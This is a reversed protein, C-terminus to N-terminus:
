PVIFEIEIEVKVVEGIAVKGMGLPVNLDIGYDARRIQGTATFGVREKGDSPLTELGNFDVALHAPQTVGNVTLDGVMEYRDEHAPTIRTSRFTMHPHDNANFFDSSLLHADRDPQNTDISSLDITATVEVDEFSPGMALTADFTKFSGRVNALGLHRVQFFVGSHSPDVTYTGVPLSLTSVSQTSM